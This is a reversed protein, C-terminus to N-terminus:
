LDDQNGAVLGFDLSQAWPNEVHETGFSIRPMEVLHAQAALPGAEIVGFSVERLGLESRDRAAADMSGSALALAAITWFKCWSKCIRSSM